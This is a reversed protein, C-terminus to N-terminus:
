HHGRIRYLFLALLIGAFAGTVWFVGYNNVDIKEIPAKPYKYQTRVNIKIKLSIIEVPKLACKTNFNVWTYGVYTDPCDCGKVVVKEKPISFNSDSIYYSGGQDIFLFMHIDKTFFRNISLSNCNSSHFFEQRDEYNASINFLECNSAIFNLDDVLSIGPTAGKSYINAFNNFNLNTHDSFILGITDYNHTMIDTINSNSIFFCELWYGFFVGNENANSGTIGCNNTISYHGRDVKFCGVNYAVCNQFVTKELDVQSVCSIAGISNAFCSLFLTNYCSLPLSAIIAGGSGDKNMTQEFISDKVTIVELHSLIPKDTFKKNTYIVSHLNIERFAQKALFNGCKGSNSPLFIAVKFCINLLFQVFKVIM